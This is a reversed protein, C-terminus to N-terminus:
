IFALFPMYKLSIESTPTNCSHYEYNINNNNIERTKGWSFNDMNILSYIHIIGTMPISMFYWLIIGIYLQIIEYKELKIWLPIFLLYLMPLAIIIIILYINIKDLIHNFTFTQLHSLFILLSITSVLIFLNLFWSLINTIAAIREFLNIGSRTALIVDNFIAGLSWRKRQSLFVKFNNPIKTYAIADLSQKIIIYPYKHLM